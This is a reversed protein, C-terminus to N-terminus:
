AGVAIFVLGVLGECAWGPWATAWQLLHALAFSILFAGLLAAGAGIGLSLAGDKARRVDDRVEAKFMAFQQKILEQADNVIGTVLSTMTPETRHEVENAM